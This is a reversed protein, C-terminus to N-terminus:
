CSGSLTLTQLHVVDRVPTKLFCPTAGKTQLFSVNVQKLLPIQKHLTLFLAVHGQGGPGTENTFSTLDPHRKHFWPPQTLINNKLYLANNGLCLFEGQM